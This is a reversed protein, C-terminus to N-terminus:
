AAPIAVDGTLHQGAEFLVSPLYLVAADAGPQMFPHPHMGKTSRAFVFDGPTGARPSGTARLNGGPGSSGAAWRMVKGPNILEHKPGYLGTGYEVFPSYKATATVVVSYLDGSLGGPIASSLGSRATTPLTPGGHFPTPTGGTSVIGTPQVRSGPSITIARRLNGTRAPARRMAEGKVLMAMQALVRMRVARRKEADPIRALLEPLGELTISIAPTGSTSPATM